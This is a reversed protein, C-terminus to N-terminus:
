AGWGCAFWVSEYNGQYVTFGTETQGYVTLYRYYAAASSNTSYNKFCAYSADAFPQLFTVTTANTSKDLYGGQELWGDSYYRYWQYGPTGRTGSEGKDYVSSHESLASLRASVAAINQALQSADLEGLNSVAGFAKICPLLTLAPPQVTESNGYIGSSLSADFRVTKSKSANSTEAGSLYVSSSDGSSFAGETIPSKTSMFRFEGVSGTINPLGAELVAGVDMGGWATRDILNPLNFTTSGDGSGYVTGIASFLDPYVTRGVPAGNCILFGEPVAACAFWVITGVPSGGSVSGLETQVFATTAIQTTNTGAAATPAKPTGTFTPSGYNAKSDLVTQVSIGSANKIDSARLTVNGTMGNVSTVASDGSSKQLSEIASSLTTKDSTSLPIDGGTINVNGSSSSINNVSQAANAATKQAEAAKAIANNSTNEAQTIRDDLNKTMAQVQAVTVYEPEIVTPNGLSSIRNRITFNEIQLVFVQNGIANYGILEANMGTKSKSSGLWDKLEETNMNTIPIYIETADHTILTENEDTEGHFIARIHQNDAAIKYATDPSFDSDMLFEWAKVEALKEMPYPTASDNNDFLFVSLAVECGRVLIPASVNKANFEDVIEALNSEASVYVKINQM